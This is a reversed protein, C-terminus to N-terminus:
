HDDHHRTHDAADNVAAALEDMLRRLIHQERALEAAGSVLREASIRAERLTAEYEDLPDDIPV